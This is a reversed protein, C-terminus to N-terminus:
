ASEKLSFQNAHNSVASLAASTIEDARRQIAEARCQDARADDQERQAEAAAARTGLQRIAARIDATPQGAELAAALRENLAELQIEFNTM